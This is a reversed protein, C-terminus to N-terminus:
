LREGKDTIIQARYKGERIVEGVSTLVIRGRIPNKISDVHGRIKAKVYSREFALDTNVMECDVLRLSRCYCFPQTGIIKCGILTLGESYWGLYEGTLVSNRVTVGKAHWFADKTDLVCGDLEANKIYQFSYKGSFRLSKIRIDQARLLFYEGSAESEEMSIRKASWGFEPSQIKCGRLVISECERLAKVGFVRTDEIVINRSYWLPARCGETMECRSIKVGNDHWFPYRLDFYCDEAVIRKGEKFASEGDRPGAFRCARACLDSEGYLAREEDLTLGEVTRISM